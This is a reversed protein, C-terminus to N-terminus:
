VARPVAKLAPANLADDWQPLDALYEPSVQKLWIFRSNIRKPSVVRSGIVGYVLGALFGAVGLLVFIAGTKPMSAGVVIAVLGALALMWGIAIAQRRKRRHLDCFGVQITATHRVLLAAIIYIWISIVILLFWGPPHWSLKRKLRIETPANCRTCRAPLVAQKAMILLTGDQWVGGDPSAGM